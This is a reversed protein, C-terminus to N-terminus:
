SRAVVVLYACLDPTENIFTTDAPAGFALCDGPELRHRDGGEEIVLAGQRVWVLQRFRGYSAAPFGVRAGAPLEISVLEVPHDRREFIQRRVYGSAPDRWLPQDAARSLRETGGEARALLGALTLDFAAALRVLVVATPSAESREIKSITARAVGSRQALDALSWGRTERELKVCHALRTGTDDM